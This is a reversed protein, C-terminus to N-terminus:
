AAPVDVRTALICARHHAAAAAGYTPAACVFLTRGDGGGLVCAFYHSGDPSKREELIRGGEAVRLLRNHLADAVWVAGEADLCIGDATVVTEAFLKARDVATPRPGFVAWDRRPGLAGGAISFASLRNALTEAVILTAGDPTIVMGNPSYVEDNVVRAKGDPEVCILVTPGVPESGGSDFGLNGVWARGDAGVIMDNLRWPSLRSLDAHEVLGGDNEHRLLKRDHMSVVLLRGDPLWGLGSPEHPVHAVTEIVGDMSIALVRHTFFDSVYLRGDHWRPAETFSLGGTLTNFTTM